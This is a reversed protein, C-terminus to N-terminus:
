PSRQGPDSFAECTTTASQSHDCLSVQHKVPMLQTLITGAAQRCSDTWANPVAACFGTVRRGSWDISALAFAAGAACRPAMEVSGMGCQEIIWMDGRQSLGALQHGVSEYCREVRGAPAGDCLHLAPAADFNVRRLIVFGQFLWCSYAYPDSYRNCPSYPDDPDLTPSMRHHHPMADHRHKAQNPGRFASAIFEMFVGQHCSTVFRAGEL